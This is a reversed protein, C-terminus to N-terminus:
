PDRLWLATGNEAIVVADGPHLHIHRPLAVGKCIIDPQDAGHPLHVVQGEVGLWLGGENVALAGPLGPLTLQTHVQKTGHSTLDVHLLSAREDPLLTLVHAASNHLAIRMPLGPVPLDELPQLDPLHLVHLCGTGFSDGGCVVVCDGSVAMDQPNPGAQALRVLGQADWLTLCSTDASLLLAQEEWLAVAVIDRSCPFCDVGHHLVHTAHDVWYTAQKTVLHQM